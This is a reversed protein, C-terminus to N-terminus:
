QITLTVEVTASGHGTNATCRYTGEAEKTLGAAVLKSEKNDGSEELKLGYTSNLGNNDFSLKEWSGDAQQKEWVFSTAAEKITFGFLWSGAKNRFGLKKTESSPKHAIEVPIEATKSGVTTTQKQEEAKSAELEEIRKEYRAAQEVLQAEYDAKVTQLTKAATARNAILLALFLLALVGLVASLILWGKEAWPFAGEKKEKKASAPAAHRPASRESRIPQGCNPCVTSGAELEQGCNKCVM